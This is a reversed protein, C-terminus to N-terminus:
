QRLSVPLTILKAGNSAAKRVLSGVRELNTPKSTGVALQILAVKFKRSVAASLFTGDLGASTWPVSGSMSEDLPTTLCGAYLHPRPQSTLSRMRLIPQASSNRLPEWFYQFFYQFCLPARCVEATATCHCVELLIFININHVLIHSLHLTEESNILGTMTM